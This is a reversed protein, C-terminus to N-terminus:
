QGKNRRMRRFNRSDIGNFIPSYESFQYPGSSWRKLNQFRERSYVISSDYLKHVFKQRLIWKQHKCTQKFTTFHLMKPMFTRTLLNYLPLIQWKYSTM